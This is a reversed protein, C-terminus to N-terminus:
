FYWRGEVEGYYLVKSKDKLLGFGSLQNSPSKPTLPSSTFAFLNSLGHFIKHVRIQPPRDHLLICINSFTQRQLEGVHIHFLQFPIFVQGNFSWNSMYLANYIFNFIIINNNNGGKCSLTCATYIQPLIVYALLPLCLISICSLNGM